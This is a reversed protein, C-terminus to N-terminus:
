SLQNIQFVASYRLEWDKRNKNLPELGWWHWPWGRRISEDGDHIKERHDPVPTWGLDKAVKTRIDLDVGTVFIYGGPKALKGINRLCKEADVRPLHCLFNSAFVMHQPGLQQSLKPDLADGVSWSIGERLSPKIKGDGNEWDFLGSKEEPTLREFISEDEPTGLFERTKQNYVGREAFQVVEPSIDMASLRIKRQTGGSRLTWMISYVEAGISCGLVAINLTGERELADAFRRTLDLMPRNRLFFTGIFVRRNPCFCVLKHLFEGYARVLRSQRLGAPLRDWVSRNVSLYAGAPSKGLLTFGAARSFM